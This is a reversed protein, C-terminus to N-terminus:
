ILKELYEKADIIDLTKQEESTDEREITLTGDYGIEKLKKILAPFDVDGEGVRCQYGGHVYDEETPITGDKAHVGWVYKGFTKLADVPNAKGDTVLNSPDLNIGLNGTGVEKIVRLLTLPTEQGTEFLFNMDLKKYFGALYKMCAVFSVFETSAPHEPIFGCHFIVDKVGMAKAFIAGKKLIEVRAQRYAVPVIGNTSPGDYHGWDCPGQEMAAGCWMATIEVGHKDACERILRANEETFGASNYFNIQCNDLGIGTMWNFRRSLDACGDAKVDSNVGAILAGIKM